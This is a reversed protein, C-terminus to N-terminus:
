PSVCVLKEKQTLNSIWNYNVLYYVCTYSYISVCARVYVCVSSLGKVRIEM